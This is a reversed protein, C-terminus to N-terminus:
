IRTLKQQTHILFPTQASIKLIFIAISCLHDFDLCVRMSMTMEHDAVQAPFCGSGIKLSRKTFGKGFELFEEGLFRLFFTLMKKVGFVLECGTKTKLDLGM